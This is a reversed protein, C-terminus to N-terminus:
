STTRTYLRNWQPALASRYDCRSYYFYKLLFITFFFSKCRGIRRRTRRLLTSHVWVTFRM